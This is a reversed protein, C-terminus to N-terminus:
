NYIQEAEGYISYGGNRLSSKQVKKYPGFYDEIFENQDEFTFDPLYESYNRQAEYPNMFFSNTPQEESSQYTQELYPYFAGTENESNKMGSYRAKGQDLSANTTIQQNLTIFSEKSATSVFNRTQKTKKTAATTVSQANNLELYSDPQYWGGNGSINNDMGQNNSDYYCQFKQYGNSKQSSSNQARTKLELNNAMLQEQQDVYFDNSQPISDLESLLSKFKKEGDTRLQLLDSMLRKIDNNQSSITKRLEDTSEQVSKFKDTLQSLQDHITKFETTQTQSKSNAVSRSGSYKEIFHEDDEDDSQNKKLKLRKIKHLTAEDKTFMEHSFSSEATETKVKRFGYMNLQRVFSSYNSHKFYKPLVANSFKSTSNIQFVTGEPNWEIFPVCEPDQLM